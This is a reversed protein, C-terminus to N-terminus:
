PKGELYPEWKDDDPLETLLVKPARYHGGDSGPDRITVWPGVGGDIPVFEVRNNPAWPDRRLRFVGARVAEKITM